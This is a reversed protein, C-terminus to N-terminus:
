PQMSVTLLVSPVAPRFAASASAQVQIDTADVGWMIEVYDGAAMQVAYVLAAATEADTGSVRFQRASSAIDAGNLRVWLWASGAGAGTKDLQVSATFVYVGAADVQVRSAPSSLAVGRSVGTTNFTLAYATNVVAATQTTTDAFSGIRPIPRPEIPPALTVFDLADRLSAITDVAQQAVADATGAAVVDEEALVLAAPLAQQSAFLEEFQRITRFDKLFASLQDRTIRSNPAQAM